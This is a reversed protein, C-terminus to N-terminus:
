KKGGFNRGFSTYPQNTIEIEYGWELPLMFVHIGRSVIRLFSLTKDHSVYEILCGAERAQQLVSLSPIRYNYRECVESVSRLNHKAKYM